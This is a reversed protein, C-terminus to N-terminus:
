SFDLVTDCHDSSNTPQAARTPATTTAAGANNESMRPDVDSFVRVSTSDVHHKLINLPLVVLFPPVGFDGLCVKEKKNSGKKLGPVILSPSSLSILTVVRSNQNAKVRCPTVGDPSECFSVDSLMGVAARTAMSAVNGHAPVIDVHLNPKAVEPTLRLTLDPLNQLHEFVELSKIVDLAAYRKQADCLEPCSWRSLRLSPSKDLKEGLTLQVLKELSATGNRVVDRKRAHSGLNVCNTNEICEPCKFDKAIRKLDGSICVGVFSIDPEAFLAVLAQPLKQHRFVQALLASMRGESDRYGLQIVATKFSAVVQGSRNTRTDWEADLSIIRESVAKSAVIQRVALVTMNIDEVSSAVRVRQMDTFVVPILAQPPQRREGLDHATASAQGDGTVTTPEKNPTMNYPVADAPSSLADLRQQTCRLSPILDYLWKRDRSPNDTAAVEPLVQGYERATNVFASVAQNMQDHGDTVTHFQLRIAGFENTVTVLAKFLPYGHYQALHKAEKYSADIHFRSCPQKKIEKELHNKITANYLKYVQALYRGTPVLGAYNLKDAFESFMPPRRTVFFASSREIEFERLLYDEHYKKSHMELITEAFSEPRVGKGFLARMLSIVSNDVGARFTFFAPFFRGLGYPLKTRSVSNYGMFTTQRDPATQCCSRQCIYRRSMVFYNSTMTVIRRGYHNSQFGHAAVDQQLCSPCPPWAVNGWRQEPLWVYVDRYYAPEEFKVNLKSCLWQAKVLLIWWNNDDLHRRLWKEENPTVEKAEYKLRSQIAQLYINMVSYDLVDGDDMDEQDQDNEAADERADLQATIEGPNFQENWHPIGHLEVSGLLPDAEPPAVPVQYLIPLATSPYADSNNRCGHLSARFNAMNRACEVADHQAKKTARAHDDKRKQADSKKSRKRPKADKSGKSRGGM